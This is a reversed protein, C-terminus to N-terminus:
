MSQELFMHCDSPNSLQTDARSVGRPKLLVSSTSCEPTFHFTGQTQTNEMHSFSYHFRFVNNDEGWSWIIQLRHNETTQPTVASVPVLTQAVIDIPVAYLYQTVTM